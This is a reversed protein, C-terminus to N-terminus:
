RPMQKNCGIYFMNFSVDDLLLFRRCSALLDCISKNILDIQTNNHWRHVQRTPKVTSIKLILNTLLTKTVTLKFM